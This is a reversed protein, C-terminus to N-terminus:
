EEEPEETAKGKEARRAARKMCDCGCAECPTIGSTDEEEAEREAEEHFTPRQTEAATLPRGEARRAQAASM